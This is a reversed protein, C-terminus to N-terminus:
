VKGCLIGVDMPGEDIDDAVLPGTDDYIALRVTVSESAVAFLLHNHIGDNVGDLTCRELTPKSVQKTLEQRGTLASKCTRLVVPDANSFKWLSSNM